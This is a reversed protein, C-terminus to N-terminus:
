AKKKVNLLFLIDKNGRFQKSDPSIFVNKSKLFLMFYNKEGKGIICKECEYFYLLLKDFISLLITIHKLQTCNFVFVLILIWIVFNEDCLDSGEEAM